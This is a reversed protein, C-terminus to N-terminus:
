VQLSMAYISEDCLEVLQSGSSAPGYKDQLAKSTLLYPSMEDEADANKEEDTFNNVDRPVNGLQSM